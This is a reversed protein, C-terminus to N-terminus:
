AAAKQDLKAKEKALHWRYERRVERQSSCSEEWGCTCTGTSSSEVGHEGSWEMTLKHGALRM